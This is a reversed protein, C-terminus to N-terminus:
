SQMGTQWGHVWKAVDIFPNVWIQRQEAFWDILAAHTGPDLFQGHTGMGVGHITLVLWGAQDQAARIQDCLQDLNCGDAEYCGLRMLDLSRSIIIPRNTKMARAAIFQTRVLDSIPRKNWLRGIHMDYCTHAFTRDTRGDLLCLFANAVQVESRLRNPTYDRLDFSKELWPHRSLPYRRCPHFLTHNGLEHGRAALERWPAPNRTPDAAINLYFTGRLGHAELQPGVHEYHVPLADDYTLSVACTRGEPWRFPASM